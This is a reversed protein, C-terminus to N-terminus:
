RSRSVLAFFDADFLRHISRIFRNIFAKLKTEPRIIKQKLDLKQNSWAEFDAILEKMWNLDYETTVGLDDVIKDLICFKKHINKVVGAVSNEMNGTYGGETLDLFLEHLASIRDELLNKIQIKEARSLEM